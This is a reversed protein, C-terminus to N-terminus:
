RRCSGDCIVTVGMPDYPGAPHGECGTYEEDYGAFECMLCDGAGDAANTPHGCRLALGFLVPNAQMIEWERETFRVETSGDAYETVTDSDHVIHTTTM